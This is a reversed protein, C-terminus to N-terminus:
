KKPLWGTLKGTPFTLSWETEGFMEQGSKEVADKLARVDVIFGNSRDSVYDHVVDSTMTGEPIEEDNWKFRLQRLKSDRGVPATSEGPTRPLKSLVPLFGETASEKIPFAEKFAKTTPLNGKLLVFLSRIVDAIQGAEEKIKGFEEGVSKATSKSDRKIKSLQFDRENMVAQKVEQLAEVLLISLQPNEDIEKFMYGLLDTKIESTRAINESTSVVETMQKLLSDSEAEVSEKSENLGSVKGEYIGRLTILTEPTLAQSVEIGYESLIELM